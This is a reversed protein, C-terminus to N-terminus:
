NKGPIFWPIGLSGNKLYMFVKDGKDLENYLQKSIDAESSAFPGWPEVTIEYTRTKGSSINKDLVVTTYRVPKSYDFSCNVLIVSGYAFFAAFLSVAVLLWKNKKYENTKFLTLLLILLASILVM